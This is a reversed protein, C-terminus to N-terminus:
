YDFLADIKAESEIEVDSERFGQEEEARLLAEEAARRAAQLEEFNRFPVLAYELLLEFYEREGLTLTKNELLSRSLDSVAAAYEARFEVVEFIDAFFRAALDVVEIRPERYRVVIPVVEEEGEGRPRAKERPPRCASALDKYLLKCADCLDKQSKREDVIRMFVERRNDREMFTCMERLQKRHAGFGKVKKKKAGRELEREESESARDLRERAEVREEFLQHPDSAQGFADKHPSFVAFFLLLYKGFANRFIVAFTM